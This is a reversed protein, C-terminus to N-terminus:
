QMHLNSSAFLGHCFRPISDRALSDEIGAYRAFFLFQPITDGRLLVQQPGIAGFLVQCDRLERINLSGLHRPPWSEVRHYRVEPLVGVAAHEQHFLRVPQIAVQLVVDRNLFQLYLNVEDLFIHNQRFLRPRRLLENM